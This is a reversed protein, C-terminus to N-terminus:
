TSSRARTLPVTVVTILSAFITPNVALLRHVIDAQM